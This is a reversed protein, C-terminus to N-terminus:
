AGGIIRIIEQVNKQLDASRNNKLVLSPNKPFEPVHDLGVINEKKSYLEKKRERLIENDVDLFIEYYNKNNKRNFDHLHHFLSITSIIVNIGQKTFLNGLRAYINGTRKRSEIDHVADEGLIFRIDDGDIHITNPYKEKIIRFIEKALTTKGSGALGTIWILRGENIGM